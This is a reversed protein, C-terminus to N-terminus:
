LFKPAKLLMRRLCALPLRSTVMSPRGQKEVFLTFGDGLARCACTFIYNVTRLDFKGLAVIKSDGCGAGFVWVREFDVAEDDGSCVRMGALFGSAVLLLLFVLLLALLTLFDLGWRAHVVRVALHELLAVLLSM